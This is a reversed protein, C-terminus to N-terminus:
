CFRSLKTERLPKLIRRLLFDVWINYTGRTLSRLCCSARDARTMRGMTQKKITLIVLLVPISNTLQFAITVTVVLRSDSNPTGM